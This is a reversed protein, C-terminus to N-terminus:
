SARELDFAQASDRVAYASGRETAHRRALSYLTDTQWIGSLYHERAISPDHLTLLHSM